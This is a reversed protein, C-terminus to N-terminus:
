EDNRYGEILKQSVDNLRLGSMAFCISGAVNIKTYTVCRIPVRKTVGDLDYEVYSSLEVTVRDPPVDIRHGGAIGGIFLYKM